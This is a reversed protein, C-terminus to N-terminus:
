VTSVGAEPRSQYLLDLEENRTYRISYGAVLISELKLGGLHNQAIALGLPSPDLHSAKRLLLNGEQVLFLALNSTTARPLFGRAAQKRNKWPLSRPIVLQRRPRYQM